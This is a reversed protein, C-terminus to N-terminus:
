KTVRKKNLRNILKEKWAQSLDSIQLLEEMADVNKQQHFMIHNAKLVSVQEQKREELKLLSTNYVKGEELVKFFYGTFCTEVIRGLLPDIGNFKSITSCPVRGETIQIKAEGLSFIDGIYVDDEKMGSACINEGFAPPTLKVGFEKEWFHYHEYPYLCVAREPGGHFAPNAVDDGIFREKTLLVENVISKGIGSSVNKGKWQYDKPKGISLTILEGIM